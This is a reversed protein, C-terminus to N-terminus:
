RTSGVQVQTRGNREDYGCLGSFTQNGRRLQMSFTLNYGASAGPNIREVKFGMRKAEDRCASYARDLDNDPPGPQFGGGGGGSPPRGSVEFLGACNNRVWVKGRDSGWTSGLQCRGGSFDRVLQGYSNGPMRCEVYRGQTSQCTVQNGPLGGGGGANGDPPNRTAEFRGQCNARVWVKGRDSGWSQGLRCQGSYDRVIRGYANNPMRCEVYRGSTSRCDIQSGQGGGGGGGTPTVQFEARCGHDVWVRDGKVGWSYGEQCRADSWRQRLEVRGNVPTQCEKYRGDKSACNFTMSGGSGGGGGWSNGLNEFGYLRIQGSTFVMCTGGDTRGRNDRATLDVQWGNPLQRFRGWGTPSLGYRSLERACDTQASRPQAAAPGGYGALLPALLLTAALLKQMKM